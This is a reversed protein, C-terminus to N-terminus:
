NQCVRARVVTFIPLQLFPDRVHFLVDEGPATQGLLGVPVESVSYEVHIADLEGSGVERM